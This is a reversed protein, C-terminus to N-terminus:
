ARGDKQTRFIVPIHKTLSVNRLHACVEYGNLEPLMVDLLILNPLKKRALDIGGMGTDAHYVEYQKATFYMLLMEAVDYDDEVILLRKTQM